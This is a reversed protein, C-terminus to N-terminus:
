LDASALLRGRSSSYDLFVGLVPWRAAGRPTRVSIADGPALGRHFALPESIFVGEGATFRDLANATVRLLNFRVRSETGRAVALLPLAGFEAQVEIFYRRDLATVGPVAALREVLAPEIDLDDAQVGVYIDGALTQDLWRDVSDRFSAIMIGVGATTAVALTLAACAPATRRTNTALGRLTLRNNLTLRAGAGRLCLAIFGQLLAPVALCFGALLLALAVFGEILGGGTRQALLWGGFLVPLAIILLLPLRRRSRTEAASGHQLTIPPARGAERAPALAALLSAGVGLVASKAFSGADLFLRKVQLNFYIDDITRTVLEVLLQALATGLALGALTGAGALLTTDRLIEAQVAAPTVGLSRAIGFARRRQLVSFSVTNYILLAGVMLALLSMATLNIHFAETLEGLSAQQQSLSTLQLSPPLWERLRAAQNEDLRLEIRDLRQRELLHQATAIDALLLRDFSPDDSDAVLALTLSM